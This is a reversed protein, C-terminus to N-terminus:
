QLSRVFPAVKEYVFAHGEVNYHEDFLQLPNEFADFSETLDLVPIDNRHAVSAVARRYRDLIRRAGFAEFRRRAPLYVLALRGNWAAVKDKALRLVQSYANVIRTDPFDAFGLASRLRYISATRRGISWVSIEPAVDSPIPRNPSQLRGDIYREFLLSLQEPRAMLNQTFNPNLYRRLLPTRIERVFDGPMDNGEFYFWVVLKPELKAAYERITALGALPGDGRQGLNLIKPDDARLRDIFHDGDQVCNGQTFSDGIAIIKVPNRWAAKPNRFGFPDSHYTVWGAGEKCLLTNENGVGGMPLVRVNKIQLVSQREGSKDRKTIDEHLLSVFVREGAGRMESLRDRALEPQAGRAYNQTEITHSLFLEASFIAVVVAIGNVLLLWQTTSRWFNAYFVMVSSAAIAGVVLFDVGSGFPGLSSFVFVALGLTIVSVLSFTIRIPSRKKWM